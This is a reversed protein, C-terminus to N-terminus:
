LGPDWNEPKALTGSPDQNETKRNKLHGVLSGLTLVHTLFKDIVYEQCPVSAVVRLMIM